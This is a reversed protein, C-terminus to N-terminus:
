FYDRVHVPRESLVADLVSDHTDPGGLHDLMRLNACSQVGAFALALGQMTFVPVDDRADVGRVTCFGTRDCTKEPRLVDKHKETAKEAAKM